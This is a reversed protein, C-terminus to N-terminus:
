PWPMASGRPTLADSKVRAPRIPPPLPPVAFPPMCKCSRMSPWWCYQLWCTPAKMLHFSAVSAATPVCGDDQQEMLEGNWGAYIGSVSATCHSVLISVPQTSHTTIIWTGTWPLQANRAKQLQRVPPIHGAWAAAATSNSAFAYASIARGNCSRLAKTVDEHTQKGEWGAVSGLFKTPYETHPGENDAAHTTLQPMSKQEHLCNHRSSGCQAMKVVQASRLVALVIIM